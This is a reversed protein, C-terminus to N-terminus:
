FGIVPIEGPSPQDHPFRALPLFEDLQTTHHKVLEVPGPFQMNVWTFSTSLTSRFHVHKSPPAWVCQDNRM